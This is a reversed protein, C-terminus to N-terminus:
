QELRDEVQYMGKEKEEVCKCELITVITFMQLWLKLYEECM